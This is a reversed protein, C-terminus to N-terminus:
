ESRGNILEWQLRVNSDGGPASVKMLNLLGTVMSYDLWLNEQPGPIGYVASYDSSYRIEGAFRGLTDGEQVSIIPCATLFVDDKLQLTVFISKNRMTEAKPQLDFFGGLAVASPEHSGSLQFVTEEVSSSWLNIASNWANESVSLRDAVLPQSLWLRGTFDGKSEEAVREELQKIHFAYREEWDRIMKVLSAGAESSYSKCFRDFDKTRYLLIKDVGANRMEFLRKWFLRCQRQNALSLGYGAERMFRETAVKEAMTFEDLPGKSTPLDKPDLLEAGKKIIEWYVTENFRSQISKSASFANEQKILQVADPYQLKVIDDVLSQIAEVKTTMIAQKSRHGYRGLPDNLKICNVLINEVISHPAKGGQHTCLDTLPTEARPSNMATNAEDTLPSDTPIGGKLPPVADNMGQSMEKLTTKDKAKVKNTKKKKHSPADLGTYDAKSRKEPTPLFRYSGRKAEPDPSAKPTPLPPLDTIGVQQRTQRIFDSIGLIHQKIPEDSCNSIGCIVLLEQIKEATLSRFIEEM